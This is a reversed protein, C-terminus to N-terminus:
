PKTGVVHVKRIVTTQNGSADKISYLIPYIGKKSTNVTGSIQLKKTLDGDVEDFATVGRKPRFTENMKITVDDAGSITPRAQDKVIIMRKVQIYNGAFDSARYTLWYRGPRNVDVEGELELRDTIDGNTEDIVRVDRFPQFRRGAPITKELAGQIRPAIVDDVPIMIDYVVEGKKDKVEFFVTTGGVLVVDKMTFKGQTNAQVTRQEQGIQATVTFGSKTKGSILSSRNNLGDVQFHVSPKSPEVIVEYGRSRNGAVDKVYVMLHTGISQRPLDIYYMDAYRSPSTHRMAIREQGRYVEIITDEGETAVPLMTQTEPLKGVHLVEPATVDNLWVIKTESARERGVNAEIKVHKGSDPYEFDITFKGFEDATAEFRKEIFLESTVTVDAFPETTGTIRLQDDNISTPVDLYVSQQEQVELTSSTEQDNYTANVTLVTGTTQQPIDSEFQGNGDVTAEALLQLGSRFQLKMGPVGAGKVKTESQALPNVHYFSYDRHRVESRNGERDITVYKLQTTQNLFIPNGSYYKHSDETPESGDRTYYVSQNPEVSFTVFQPNSYIGSELNIGAEQLHLQEIQAHAVEAGSFPASLMLSTVLTPVIFAKWSFNSM